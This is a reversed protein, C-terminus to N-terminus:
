VQKIQYTHDPMRDIKGANYLRECAKRVSNGSIPPDTLVQIQSPSLSKDSDSLILYVVETNSLNEDKDNFYAETTEVTTKNEDFIFRYAIPEHYTSFPPPKRNSLTVVMEHSGPEQKKTVEWISRPIYEYLANGYITKRKSLIDKSTQGIIIPTANIQRLASFFKQAPETENLNDGVALALSDIIVIDAKVEDARRIYFDINDALPRSCRQYPLDCWGINFGNLLCEKAWGVTDADCEWDLYLINHKDNPSINFGLNNNYLPVSLVIDVLTMFQSKASGREAFIVNPSNKVFLPYLVYEPRKQGYDSNLMVLPEIEDRIKRIAYICVQDIINHWPFYKLEDTISNSVCAKKITERGSSSQLNFRVGSIITLPADTGSYQGDIGIEIEADFKEPKEIIRTLLVIVNKEDGYVWHFALGNAITTIIPQSIGKHIDGAM